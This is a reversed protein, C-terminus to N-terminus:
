DGFDILPRSVSELMLDVGENIVEKTVKPYLGIWYRMFVCTSCLIELPNRSIKKEFFVVNRTKWIAWCIVALGLM